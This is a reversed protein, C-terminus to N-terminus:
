RNKAEMDRKIESTRRAIEEACERHEASARGSSYGFDRLVRAEDAAQKETKIIVNVM